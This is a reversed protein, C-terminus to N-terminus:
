PDLERCATPLLHILSPTLCDPCVDALECTQLMGRPYKNYIPNDDLQRELPPCTEKVNQRGLMQRPDGLCIM